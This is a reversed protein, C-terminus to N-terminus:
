FCVQSQSQHKQLLEKNKDAKKRLQIEQNSYHLEWAGQREGIFQKTQIEVKDLNKNIVKNETVSQEVKQIMENHLLKEKSETKFQFDKNEDMTKSIAMNVLSTMQETRSTTSALNRATADSTKNVLASYSEYESLLSSLLGDIKRKAEKFRVGFQSESQKVKEEREVISQLEALQLQSLAKVKNNATMLMKKQSNLFNNRDGSIATMGSNINNQLLDLTNGQDRLSSDVQQLWILIGETLFKQM